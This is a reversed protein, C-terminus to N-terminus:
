AHRARRRRRWWRQLSGGARRVRTVLPSGNQLLAEYLVGRAVRYRLAWKVVPDAGRADAERLLEGASTRMLENRIPLRAYRRLPVTDPLTECRGLAGAIRLNVMTRLCKECRGCNYPAAEDWCVRLTRMALDSEALRTVKATRTTVGEHEFEVAETSWLPDLLPHSGRPIMGLYSFTAAVLFREFNPAMTLGLAALFTGHYRGWGIFQDAVRRLNSEVVILPRDLGSAIEDLARSMATRVRPESDYVDFGYSYVLSDVRDLNRLVTYFGDVGRSFFAATGRGPAPELAVPDAYVEVPEMPEYWASFIRQITPAAELLRASVPEPVTLSSASCMAIPLAAVLFPEYRPELEVGPVQFWIEHEEDGIRLRGSIREGEVAV